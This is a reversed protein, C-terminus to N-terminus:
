IKKFAWFFLKVSVNKGFAFFFHHHGRGPIFEQITQKRHKRKDTSDWWVFEAQKSQGDKLCSLMGGCIPSGSAHPLSSLFAIPLATDECRRQPLKVKFLGPKKTWWLRGLIIFNTLAPNKTEKNQKKKEPFPFFSLLTPFSSSGGLTQYSNTGTCVEETEMSRTKCSRGGPLEAVTPVFSGSSRSTRGSSPSWRARVSSSLM